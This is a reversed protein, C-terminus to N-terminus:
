LRKLKSIVLVVSVVVVAVVVCQLGAEKKRKRPSDRLDVVQSENSM